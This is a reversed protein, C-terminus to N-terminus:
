ITNNMKRLLNEFDRADSFDYYVSAFRVYAVDDLSALSKMIMKGVQKTTIEHEGSTEIEKILNNILLEVQDHTIRRKRIALDISKKLKDRNFPRKSGDKKVILIDRLEVREYTNFRSGCKVCSRRRKISRGDLGPRSDKVQTDEDGCFPCKM